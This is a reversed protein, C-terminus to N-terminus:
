RGVDARGVSTVPLHQTRHDALDTAPSQEVVPVRPRINELMFALGFTVGLIAVFIMLPVTKKRPQVVTAKDARNLVTLEVRQGAPIKAEAQRETLYDLFTTSAARALDIAAQPSEAVSSFTLMPLPTANGINSVAPAATIVAKQEDRGRRIRARVADSNALQAYSVALAALRNPDAYSSTPTGDTTTEPFITRGDPFGQETILLTENAGYGVAQRYKLVPKGHVFSVSAM